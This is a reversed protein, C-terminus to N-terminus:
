LIDLTVLEARTADSAARALEASAFSPSTAIVLGNSAKIAFAYGEDTETLEFAVEAAAQEQILFAGNWASSESAYAHSAVLETGDSALVVFGFAGAEESVEVHARSPNEYVNTLYSTVARVCSTIARKANSKSSYLQTIGLQEGNAAVRLRLFYKGNTSQAIQYQAPDVGNALVSLVGSIANARTSYGESTLLVNKNGALLHFRFKGDTSQWLDFQGPAAAEGELDSYNDINTSACGVAVSSLTLVLLVSNITRM